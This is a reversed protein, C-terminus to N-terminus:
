INVPHFLNPATELKTGMGLKRSSSVLVGEINSSHQRNVIRRLETFVIKVLIHRGYTGGGAKVILILSVRPQKGNQVTM